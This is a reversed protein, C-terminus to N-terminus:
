KQFTDTMRIVGGTVSAYIANGFTVSSQGIHLSLIYEYCGLYPVIIVAIIQDHAGELFRKLFEIGRINIKKKNVPGIWLRESVAPLSRICLGPFCHLFEILCTLHSRYTYAIESLMM